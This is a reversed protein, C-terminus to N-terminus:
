NLEDKKERDRKEIERMVERQFEMEGKIDEIKREMEEASKEYAEIDANLQALEQQTTMKQQQEKVKHQIRELKRQSEKLRPEFKSNIIWEERRKVMELNAGFFQDIYRDLETKVETVKAKAEIIKKDYPDNPDPPGLRGYKRKSAPRVGFKQLFAKGDVQQMWMDTTPLSGGSKEGGQVPLGSSALQQLKLSTSSGDQGGLAPRETQVTRGKDQKGDQTAATQQGAREEGADM